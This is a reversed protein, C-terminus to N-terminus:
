FGLLRTFIAMFFGLIFQLFGGALLIMLIIFGYSELKEFQRALNYPLQSLLIKSGDLPPIPLLNFVGLILNIYTGYRLIEGILAPFLIPIADLLHYTIAFIIAM